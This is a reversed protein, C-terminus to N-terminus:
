RKFGVKEQPEYREPEDDDSILRGCKCKLTPLGLERTYGRESYSHFHPRTELPKSM